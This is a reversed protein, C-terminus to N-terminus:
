SAAGQPAATSKRMVLSPGMLVASAQRITPDRQLRQIAEVAYRAMDV